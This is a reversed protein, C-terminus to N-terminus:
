VLGGKILPVFSFGPYERVKNQGSEKKIYVISNKLPIVMAGKFRLQKILDSPIEDAAASVLIRDFPAKIRLGNTGDGHFVNINEYGNLSERSREHLEKIREVGYIRLNRGLHHILALVYGSGSGVELIRENDNVELLSLMFAITYPQSITAGVCLPLANNEYSLGQHRKNVFDERKVNEFSKIIDSSFGERILEKILEKKNM